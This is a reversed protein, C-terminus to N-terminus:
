FPISDDDIEQPEQKTTQKGALGSPTWVQIASAVIDTATKTQGQWDYSRSTLRGYMTLKSGDPLKSIQTALDGWATVKFNVTEKKNGWGQEFAIQFNVLPNGAKTHKLEQSALSGEIIVVNAAM